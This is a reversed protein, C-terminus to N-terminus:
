VGHPEVVTSEGWVGSGVRFDIREVTNENSVDRLPDGGGFKRLAEPVTLGEAPKWNEDFMLDAEPGTIGLAKAAVFPLTGDVFLHKPDDHTAVAAVHGAICYATGCWHRQDYSEPNTEITDAIQEFLATNRTTM